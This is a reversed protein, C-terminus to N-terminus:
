VPRADLVMLISRPPGCVVMTAEIRVGFVTAPRVWATVAEGNGAAVRLLADMLREAGRAEADAAEFLASLPQHIVDAEDVALLRQCAFSLGGVALYRDLIVFPSDPAPVADAPAELLLGFGCQGCVRASPHPPM